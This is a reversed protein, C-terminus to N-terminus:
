RNLKTWQYKFISSKEDKTVSKKNLTIYALYCSTMIELYKRKNLNTKSNFWRM